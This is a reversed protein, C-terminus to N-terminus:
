QQKSYVLKILINAKKHNGHLLVAQSAKFSIFSIDRLYSKAQFSDGLYDELVSALRM